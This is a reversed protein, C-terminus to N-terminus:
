GSQNANLLERVAMIESSLTESKRAQQLIDTLVFEAKACLKDVMQVPLVLLEGKDSSGVSGQASTRNGALEERLRTAAVKLGYYGRIYGDCLEISRCFRRVSETLMPAPDSTSAASIYLIEGLRAHTNWANPAVLLIEEQCFAAQPFMRQSMYLDSLEAWAEIDTPSAGLLDVLAAIADNTRSLGRLLVVRRKVIPINSPDEALIDCYEQLIRELAPEGEAMAEQYIGHLAMVRDNNAGFRNVLKELCLHAAKDDGTRLCSFLYTEYSSWLELSAPQSSFPAQLLTGSPAHKQLHEAAQQSAALAQEHSQSTSPNM